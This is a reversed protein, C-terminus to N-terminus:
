NKGKRSSGEREEGKRNITSRNWNLFIKGLLQDSIMSTKSKIIMSAIKNEKGLDLNQIRKGNHGLM